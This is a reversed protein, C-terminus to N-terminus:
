KWLCVFVIFFGQPSVPPFQMFDGFVIVNLGGFPVTRDAPNKAVVMQSSMESMLPKSVTSIEDVLQYTVPGYRVQLKQVAQATPQKRGKEPGNM